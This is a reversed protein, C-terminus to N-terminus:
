TPGPSAPIADRASVSGSSRGTPGLPSTVGPWDTLLVEGRGTALALDMGAVAGLVTAPDHNGPHRFDSHGDLHVLSVPGARRVGALAGLLISCDGGVVLPFQGRASAGGVLDALALNFARVRHGNYLRTGPEPRSDYTPRALDLVTAPSVAKILGVDTLAKPARWTGPQRDPAPPRLGLNSPARILCLGPM